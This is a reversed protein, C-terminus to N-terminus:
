RAREADSSHEDSAATVTWWLLAAGAVGKVTWLVARVLNWAMLREHVAPDFGDALNSHAPASALGSIILIAAGALAAVGVMALERRSRALVILGITAIGEITWPVLLLPGIRDVHAAQFEVYDARGVDAFSPYHVVHITWILGVMFWAAIAHFFM